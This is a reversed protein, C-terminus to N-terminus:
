CTLHFGGAVQKGEEYLRNFTKIATATPEVILEIGSDELHRRLREIVKVLGSSGSGIVRVDPQANIIDTVDDVDVAHGTKRWWDPYVLGNIIKLDATYRIGSITMSGFSYQDIM